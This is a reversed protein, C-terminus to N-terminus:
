GTNPIGNANEFSAKCKPFGSCAWFDYAGKRGTGIRHLLPKTCKPCAHASPEPQPTRARAKGPKGKADPLATKCEPYGSCGWFFGKSGKRRRLASGCQPCAHEAAPLSIQNQRLGGLEKDLLAWTQSIVQDYTMRGEAILDLQDELERTFDLNAFAFTGVLADRILEGTPSPSLFGKSDELLYVRGTINELIAAYTSPRGIGQRELEAVLTSQKFRVPPKTVKDLVRADVAQINKGVDLWPIPNVPEAQAGDEPDDQGYVRMWGPDVLKRGRGIFRVPLGEADGTLLVKRVAYRADALQSAVARRWILEYLAQQSADEGAQLAAVDAPRIAEHGEQAGEKAKWSRQKEALQLGASLAYARIAEIGAADLNPNDTRHYTIAGQEYLKQALDMVRKPKMKLRKGAEQQLTSTTFSAAPARNAYASEFRAVQVDRVQAVREALARDLLYEEGKLLHPRTDWQARWLAKPNDPWHGPIPLSLEVGFHTVAKFNAIERERDVVLRVAPSQVRGASLAHGASNSLAPSVKYGVLRDLVRRAEQARVRDHDIARVQSLAERIKDKTIATFTIRKPQKLRLADALHWAIAEGERDPDTALIVQDAAAVEKRLKALVGKGRDTPVYTPKFSAPDVGLERGPLDRVHGVSAVVKYGRGLISSIKKIKGPSEVIVLTTM